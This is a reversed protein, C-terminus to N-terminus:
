RRVALRQMSHETMRMQAARAQVDIKNAWYLSYFLISVIVFAGAIAIPWRWGPEEAPLKEILYEKRPEGIREFTFLPM